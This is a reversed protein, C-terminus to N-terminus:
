WVIESDIFLAKFIHYLVDVIISNGAQKYLQSSSCVKSAKDFQEDTFGMLRWCERPTLKRIKLNNVVVALDDASHTTLTQILGDQVTGRKQHPRNIYIGDGDKALAYGQKTAEPIAIKKPDKYDRACITPSVGDSDYVRNNQENASLNLSGSVKIYNGEANSGERTTVTYSTEDDEALPRFNRQWKENNTTFYKMMKDSLFYKSDVNSELMDKLKLQLPFRQPFKFKGNDIDKRISVVFVRERNQPIGYDKGNLVKWYSNYGLMDLEDLWSQFDSMFKNAVLQKM